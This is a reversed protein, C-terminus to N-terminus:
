RTTTRPSEIESHESKPRGYEARGDEGPTGYYARAQRSRSMNLISATPTVAVLKLREVADRVSRHSAKGAACVILTTSAVSAIVRADNVPVLPPADIIIAEYEKALTDLLPGFRTALVESPDRGIRGSTLLDLSEIRTSRVIAGVRGGEFVERVGPARDVGLLEAVRGRHLDADVLITRVGSRAMTVALGTAITTKGHRGDPSTVVISRIDREAFVLNTRLDRLAETVIRLDPDTAFASLTRVKRLRPTHPIEAFVPVGTAEALDSRTRVRRGLNEWLFAAAIGLGLGLLLAIAYTLKKDPSVPSTPIEPRDIVKLRLGPVGIEGGRVREVLVNTVARSSAQALAPDSSEADIKFIPTAQFTRVSITGLRGGLSARAAQRTSKTEAASAYISVVPDLTQFFLLENGLKAPSLSLTSSSRYQPTIVRLAGYAGGIAIAIVGVLIWKRHWLVTIIQNIDM